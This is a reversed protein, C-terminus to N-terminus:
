EGALVEVAKVLQNDTLEGAESAEAAEGLEVEVDPKIGDEHIWDGSPLLWRAITVHLGANDPLDMADQVTGKGFSREGVLKVGLRDRLAGALIESASASGGNMLVVLPMGLMRGRKSVTYEYKSDKGQQTVVLGEGIFESALDVAGDLYGGPNNRVDLVLGKIQARKQGIEVMARDWQVGTNDGFRRVKVWAVSGDKKEEWMGGVVEGIEM